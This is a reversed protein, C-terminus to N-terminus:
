TIAEYRFWGLFTIKTYFNLTRQESLTNVECTLGCFDIERRIFIKKKKCLFDFM